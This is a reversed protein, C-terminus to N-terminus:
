DGIHITQIEQNDDRYKVTDITNSNEKISEIGYKLKLESLEHKYLFVSNVADSQNPHIM